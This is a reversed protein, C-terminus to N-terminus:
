SFDKITRTSLYIESMVGFDNVQLCLFKEIEIFYLCSSNSSSSVGFVNVIQRSEKSSSLYSTCSCISRSNNSSEGPFTIMFLSPPSLILSISLLSIKSVSCYIPVVFSWLSFPITPSIQCPSVVILIVVLCIRKSSASLFIVFTKALLFM